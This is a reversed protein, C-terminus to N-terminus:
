KMETEAHQSAWENMLRHRCDNIWEKWQELKGYVWRCKWADMWGNLPGVVWLWADLSIALGEILYNLAKFIKYNGSRVYIINSYGDRRHQFIKYVVSRRATSLAPSHTLSSLYRITAIVSHGTNSYNQLSLNFSKTPLTHRQMELWLMPAEQSSWLSLSNETITALMLQLHKPTVWDYGSLIKHLYSPIFTIYLEMRSAPPPM